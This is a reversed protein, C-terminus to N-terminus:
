IVRHQLPEGDRLRRCNAVGLRVCRALTETTLWAVHPTVVVNDLSLLPSGSDVPEHEFVDLGAGALHGSRMADALAAEDVIGGRGTNLLIAGPKIAALRDADILGRTDDTLPLHISVVDAAALLQDLPMWGPASDDRRHHVVRAGMAEVITGFRRAIDGYGVLGITRGSVEGLQDPVDAALPWGAGRRTDRDFTPIRRLVALLLGLTLEAVASANVGPLNAVAIGRAKAADLDITNVGVGLKQILRLRPAADMVAATVPELVHLLAETAPLKALLADDDREPTWTIRIGGGAEADLAAQLRPGVNYHLLVNV